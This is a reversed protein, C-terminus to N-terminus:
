IPDGTDEWVNGTWEACTGAVPGHSFDRGFINNRVYVGPPPDDYCYITYGGGNLWNNEIVYNSVTKKIQINSNSAGAKYNPTGEAPIWFNNYRITVNSAGAGDTQVGDAHPPDGGPYNLGIREIFSYEVLVGATGQIKIADQAVDHIHLRRATFGGYGLLGAARAGNIEGDEILIGSHGPNIFIGYWSEFDEDDIRFNRLTVNDADITIRSGYTFNEYTAGDATITSPGVYPTLAAPDSPGTNHAWPREKQDQPGATVSVANGFDL